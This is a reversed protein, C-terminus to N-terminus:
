IWEKFIERFKTEIKLVEANNLNLFENERSRKSLSGNNQELFRVLLAVTKDPMEFENDLFQKFEDYNKLYTVENPIINLVTDNVCDYLFETQKTADFYRYFDITENKVDVNHNETEEWDIFDM